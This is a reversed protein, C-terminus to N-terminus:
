QITIQDINYWNTGVPSGTIDVSIQMGATKASLLMALMNNGKASATPDFQFIYVTSGITANFLIRYDTSGTATYINGIIFPGETTAHSIAFFSLIYIAVLLHRVYKM